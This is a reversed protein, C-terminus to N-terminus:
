QCRISVPTGDAYTVDAGGNRIVNMTAYGQYYNTKPILQNAQDYAFTIYQTPLPCVRNELLDGSDPYITPGSVVCNGNQLGQIQYVPWSADAPTLYATKCAKLNTTFCDWAKKTAADTNVSTITTDDAYTYDLEASKEQGCNIGKGTTVISGAGVTGSPISVLDANTIGLSLFRMIQYAADGDKMYYRKGDAPNVYWAEGHSEVQLLIYGKMKSTLATDILTKGPGLPNFGGKVELGDAFTDGDTDPNDRKTGIGDELQDPLGDGDTDTDQFRPELGIPIKNLNANAIGLGFSRLMSYAVSGDKMYYRKLDKPYVYWAEGHSQVQLLIRGSMRSALSAAELPQIALWFISIMIVLSSGLIVNLKNKM